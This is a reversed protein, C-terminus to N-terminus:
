TDDACPAIMAGEGGVSLGGAALPAGSKGRHVHGNRPRGLAVSPVGAVMCDAVDARRVAEVERRVRCPDSVAQPETSNRPRTWCAGSATLNRCDEAFAVLRGREVIGRPNLFRSLLVSLFWGDCATVLYELRDALGIRERSRRIM